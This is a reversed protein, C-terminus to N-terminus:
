ANRGRISAKIISYNRIMLETLARIRGSNKTLEAMERDISVNSGDARIPASRDLGVNPRFSDFPRTEEFSDFSNSVRGRPRTDKIARKLEEEFSVEIRQYRPTDVNAINNVIARHRADYGSLAAQIVM